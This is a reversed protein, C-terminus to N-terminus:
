IKENIDIAIKSVEILESVPIPSPKSDIVSDIFAKICQKQGKDQKWLKINKFKKYGYFYLSNFNDLKIINGNNFIEINEKSYRNNGNAFYNIVGISGDEFKIQIAVCDKTNDMNIVNWNKIKTGVLYRLLDIFHCVEGIIRGGGVSEDVTWHNVEMKGANITYIISSPSNSDQLISKIKIILKSFRRNFGVMLKSGENLRNIIKDIGEYNIALPKEVFVNKNNKLSREVYDAHSDHRTAIFVTNIEHDSFIDNPDSSCIEFGHKEAALAASLGNQSVATKLRIKKNNLEPLLFRKAYSGTGLFGLNVSSKQKNPIPEKLVIKRDFEKEKGEHNYNIIIGLNDTNEINKYASLIDEFDFEKSILDDTNIKDAAMLNLIAEFNRKATWRVYAYPYDINKEEYAYDYRGPGYSSSVQFSIEKEYFDNRDLNLGVDGILIVKGSKKCMNASNKIVDNTDTKATILISDAGYENTQRMIERILLDKDGINLANIDLKRALHCKNEDIDIGIVNCGNAKLIQSSLLGIVGLGYVVVTEGIMPSMLRIGQLGISALVTFSAQSPEINDPVKAVLNKSASFFESHPGNSIVKDGVDFEKCKSEIVVGYNSYGLQLPENLKNKVAEYTPFIGDTSIKNIVQAVRKPQKLAKNLYSSRGFDILMKETGLSILSKESKILVQDNIIEPTPTSVLSIQGNKIDLTVIKM